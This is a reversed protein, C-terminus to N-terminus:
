RFINEIKLESGFVIDQCKQCLRSIQFEKKSLNDRFSNDNVVEGCYWCVESVIDKPVCKEEFLNKVKM